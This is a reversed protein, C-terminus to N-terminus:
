KKYFNTSEFIKNASQAIFGSFLNGDETKYRRAFEYYCAPIEYKGEQFETPVIDAKTSSQELLMEPTGKKEGGADNLKFGKSKLFENMKEITNYKELKNVLVTFHNARFGYVYLWAAYESVERIKLYMKYEPIGWVNGSYLLAESNLVSEQITNVLNGVIEQIFSETNELIYESIFVKPMSENSEHEYHKAKLNKDPINYDQKAVYGYELLFSALKDLNIREHNFTRFAIHDNQIVENEDALLQHIQKVSPNLSSYDVWLNGFLSQISM